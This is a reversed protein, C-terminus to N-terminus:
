QPAKGAPPTDDLVKVRATYTATKDAALEPAYWRLSRYERVPVTEEVQKGDRVVQRKLPMAAFARTDLSAKAGAPRASGDVLETDHPIPLTAELNRIPQKGTNRYTAVYEIVDGPRASEAPALKETGDAARVVKHAELRTVLPNNNNQQALAPFAAAICAFAAVARFTRNM